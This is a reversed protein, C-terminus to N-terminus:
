REDEWVRDFPDSATPVDTPPVPVLDPVVPPIYGTPIYGKKDRDPGAQELINDRDTDRSTGESFTRWAWAGWVRVIGASQLKVLARNFSKKASDREIDRSTGAAAMAKDRWVQVPVVKGVVLRNIEADPIEAPVPIGAQVMAENLMMLALRNGDSLRAIASRVANFESPGVAECPEVVCSTVLKGRCNEGLEVVKLTFSLPDGMEADKQKTLRATKVQGAEVLVVTDVGGKLSSHGRPEESEADKPRHHVPMVCCEFESAIRSCNAVYTAMDDSNEKGAGFTKSLTDIVILAARQGTSEVAHRITEALRKVDAEPAQMDIPSVLLALPARNFGFHQRYASVRNKVGRQGEGVVYIVIGQEVHRGFWAIGLAVHFAIDLALFTKGSGPHGYLLVLGLAPLFEEILWLGDLQPEVDAVWELPFPLPGDIRDSKPEFRQVKAGLVGEGKM